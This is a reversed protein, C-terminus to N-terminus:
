VKMYRGFVVAEVGYDELQTGKGPGPYEEGRPDPYVTEWYVWEGAVTDWVKNMHTIPVNEPRPYPYTWIYEGGYVVGSSDLFAWSEYETESGYITTAM